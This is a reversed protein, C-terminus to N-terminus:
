SSWRYAVNESYGYSGSFVYGAAAMRDKASSGGPGTHTMTDTDLQYQTHKRAADTIYPNIALPQKPATSITGSPLGENLSIGLRAAEAAPNARARNILEVVYQEAATPYVAAFFRRSELQQLEPRHNRRRRLTSQHM